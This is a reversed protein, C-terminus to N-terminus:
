GITHDEILEHVLVNVGEVTPPVDKSETAALVISQIRNVWTPSGFRGCWDLDADVDDLNWEELLLGKDALADAKQAVCASLAEGALGADQQQCEMALASQTRARKWKMLRRAAAPRPENATDMVTMLVPVPAEVVQFGTETARRVRIKGDTLDQIEEM